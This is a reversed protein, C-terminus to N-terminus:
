QGYCVKNVGLLNECGNDKIERPIVTVSVLFLFCHNLM